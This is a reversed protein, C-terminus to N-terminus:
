TSLKTKGNTINIKNDRQNQTLHFYKYMLVDQKKKREM